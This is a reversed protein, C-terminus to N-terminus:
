LESLILLIVIHVLRKKLAALAKWALTYLSQVHISMIESIEEYSMGEFFLLHIIEQQRAPLEQLCQKLKRTKEELTQVEILNHEYPLLILRNAVEPEMESVFPQEKRLAQHIKIKLAKLLYFKIQRTASLHTRSKWLEVFLEQICDKVLSRHAKIKMGYNFLDKAYTRYMLELAEKNGTKFADWLEADSCGKWHHFKSPLSSPM